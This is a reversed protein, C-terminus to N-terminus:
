FDQIWGQLHHDAQMLIWCGGGGYKTDKYLAVLITALAEM